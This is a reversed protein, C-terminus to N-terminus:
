RGVFLPSQRDRFAASGIRAADSSGTMRICELEAELQSGLSNTFGSAVLRRVAGFAMTPGNALTTALNLAIEDLETDEVVHTILGWDRAEEAGLRRNTMALELTRRVGILRPLSWTAGGDPSLGIATYAMVFKANTSAVVMDAASVISLGAGAAAGRVAVILPANLEALSSLGRHLPAVMASLKEAREAGTGNMGGVDGGVCFNRGEGQLLVARVDDRNVLSRAAEELQECALVDLSNGVEPRVLTLKALGDTVDLLIRPRHSM